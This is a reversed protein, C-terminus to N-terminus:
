LERIRDIVELAESMDEIPTQDIQEYVMIALVGHAVPRIKPPLNDFCGPDFVVRLPKKETM